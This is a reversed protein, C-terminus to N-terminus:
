AEDPDTEPSLGEGVVLRELLTLVEQYDFGRFPDDVDERTAAFLLMTAVDVLAATLLAADDPDADRVLSQFTDRYVGTADTAYPGTVEVTDAGIRASLLRLARELAEHFEPTRIDISFDDRRPDTDGLPARPMQEAVRRLRELMQRLEEPFRFPEAM